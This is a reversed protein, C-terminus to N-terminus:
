SAASAATRSKYIRRTLAIMPDAVLRGQFARSIYLGVDPQRQHVKFHERFAFNMPKPNIVISNAALDGHADVVLMAGLYEASAASDFLAMHRIIPDTQALAPNALANITGKMSLDYLTINRAIDRSLALILNDSAQEARQWTDSRLDFLIACGLGLM